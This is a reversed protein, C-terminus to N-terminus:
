ADDDPPGVLPDRARVEVERREHEDHDPHQVEGLRHLAAELRRGHQGRGGREGGGRRRPREVPQSRQERDRDRRERRAPCPRRTAGHRPERRARAPRSPARRSRRPLRDEGAVREERRRRKRSRTSQRTGIERRRADLVVPIVCPRAPRRHLRDITSPEHCQSCRKQSCCVNSFGSTAIGSSAARRAACRREQEGPARSRGAAAVRHRHERHDDRAEGGEDAPEEDRRVRAEGPRRDPEHREREGGPRDRRGSSSATATAARGPPSPTTSITSSAVSDPPTEPQSTGTPREARRQDAAAAAARQVPRGRRPTARARRRRRPADDGAHDTTESTRPRSTRRAVFPPGSPIGGFGVGESISTVSRSPRTTRWGASPASWHQCATRQMGCSSTFASAIRPDVVRAVAELGRATRKFALPAPQAPAEACLM